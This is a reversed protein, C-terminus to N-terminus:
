VEVLLLGETGMPLEAKCTGNQFWCAGGNAADDVSNVMLAHDCYEAAKQAYAQRAEQEWAEKAYDLHVPWLLLDAEQRFQAATEDWLDGSLAIRCRKGRYSFTGAETGEQYHDDTKGSEKWGPSIRRYRQLLVGGSVLACSSYVTEGDRELFGFLVDVGSDMTWGAIIQFLASRCSLAMNQDAAFDWTLSHFGQLFAEGFCVLEAGQDRAQSIFKAMQTLNFAVDGNHAPASVLAIKMYITGEKTKETHYAKWGLFDLPRM